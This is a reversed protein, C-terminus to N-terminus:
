SAPKLPAVTVATGAAFRQPELALQDGAKLGKTVIVREAPWDIFSIEQRELKGERVLMVFPARSADGIATRPIALANDRREVAINVDTSLGTPIEKPTDDFALRITRGGTTPEIRPSVFIVKGTFTKGEMGAPAILASMGPRIAGALTEDVETEIEPPSQSVLEFLQTTLTVVQGPDVPRLVVRGAMPARIVFDELRSRAEQATAELRLLEERDRQVQLSVAEFGAKTTFGKDLLARARALDRESQALQRRQSAVSAERQRLIARPQSADIEGLVDGERVTDGEDKTFHTVLGAARAFVAVRDEAKVRGVAALVREVTGAEVTMAEVQPLRTMSRYALVLATLAAAALLIWTLRIRTTM